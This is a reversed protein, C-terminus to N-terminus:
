LNPFICFFQSLYFVTFCLFPSFAAMECTSKQHFLDRKHSELQDLSCNWPFKLSFRTLFANLLSTNSEMIVSNLFPKSFTWSLPFFGYFKFYFFFLNTTLTSANRQFAKNYSILIIVIIWKEVLSKTFVTTWKCKKTVKVTKPTFLSVWFLITILKKFYFFYKGNYCM